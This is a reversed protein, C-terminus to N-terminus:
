KSKFYIHYQQYQSIPNSHTKWIILPSLAFSVVGIGLGGVIIVPTLGLNILGFTLSTKADWETWFRNILISSAGEVPITVCGLNSPDVMSSGVALAKHLNKMLKGGQPVRTPVHYFAISCKEQNGGCCDWHKAIGEANSLWEFDGRHTYCNPKTQKYPLYDRDCYACTKKILQHYYFSKVDKLGPIYYSRLNRREILELWISDNEAVHKMSKSVQSLKSISSIPLFSSIKTWIDTPLPPNLFLSDDIELLVPDTSQIENMDNPIVELHLDKFLDLINSDKNLDETLETWDNWIHNSENIRVQGEKTEPPQTPIELQPTPGTLPTQICKVHASSQCGYCYTERSLPYILGRCFCCKGGKYFKCGKFVHEHDM